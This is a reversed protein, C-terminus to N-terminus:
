AKTGRRDRVARAVAVAGVLVLCLTGPEPVATPDPTYTFDDLTFSGGGPDGTITVYSIGPFALGLLENPASGPDGSLAINSAFVSSISGLSTNSVNFAELTIPVTYTFYGFVDIITQAFDIRMPGGIDAVVNAGSRPPFEFENLSFGATLATTNAFALGLFQATVPDGDSLTEFDIISTAAAVRPVTVLVILLVGLRWVSRLM